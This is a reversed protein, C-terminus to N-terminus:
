QIGDQLERNLERSPAPLVPAGSPADCVGSPDLNESVGVRGGAPSVMALPLGRYDRLQAVKPSPTVHFFNLNARKCVGICVFLIKQELPTSSIRQFGLGGHLSKETSSELGSHELSEQVM